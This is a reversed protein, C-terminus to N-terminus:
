RVFFFRPFIGGGTGSLSPRTEVHECSRHSVCEIIPKIGILFV